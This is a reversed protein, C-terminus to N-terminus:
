RPFIHINKNHMCMNDCLLQKEFLELLGMFFLFCLVTYKRTGAKRLTNRWVTQELLGWVETSLGSRSESNRKLNMTALYLPFLSSVLLTGQWAEQLKYGSKGTKWSFRVELGSSHPQWYSCPCSRHAPIEDHSQEEYIDKTRGVPHPMVCCNPLVASVCFHVLCPHVRGKYAGARWAARAGEGRPTTSTRERAASGCGTSFSSLLNM